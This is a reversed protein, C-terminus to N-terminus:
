NHNVDVFVGFGVSFPLVKRVYQEMWKDLRAIKTKPVYVIDRPELLPGSGLDERKEIDKLDVRLGAYTAGPGQRIVIVSQPKATELFGGALAVGQLVSVDGSLPYVGP